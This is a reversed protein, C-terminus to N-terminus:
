AFRESYALVFKMFREAAPGRKRRERMALFTTRELKLEPMPIM